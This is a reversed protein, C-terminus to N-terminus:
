SNAQDIMARAATDATKDGSAIMLGLEKVIEDGKLLRAAVLDKRNSEKKTISWHNKAFSALQPLHTVCIVQRQNSLDKLKKGIITGTRGGVGSDIEDFVLTSKTDSSNVTVFIALMIRSLEGGSAAKSLPVPPHTKNASFLMKVEDIGNPGYSYCKTNGNTPISLGQEHEHNNVLVEFKANEMGVGKLYSEVKTKLRKSCKKRKVSLALAIVGLYTKQEAEIQRLNKIKQESTDLEELQITIKDRYKLVDKLTNGYKRKIDSLLAMRAEVRELEEPNVEISNGYDRLKRVIDEVEFLTGQALENLQETSNDMSHVQGLFAGGQRMLNEVSGHTEGEDGSFIQIAQSVLQKLEAANSLRNISGRLDAEEDVEIQISNIENIQFQFLEKREQSKSRDHELQTIKDQVAKYEHFKEAMEMKNEQLKAYEDLIWLQQESSVLNAQQGQGHIECVVAGINQLINASIIMGDIRCVTRRENITRTLIIENDLEIDILNQIQEQQYTTLEFVAEIKADESGHRISSRDTKQGLVLSLADVIISKGAGTEGTFVNLGSGIELELHDIIAFNSISLFKLM